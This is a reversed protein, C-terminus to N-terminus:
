IKLNWFLNNLYPRLLIGGLSANPFFGGGTDDDAVDESPMQFWRKPEVKFAGILSLIIFPSMSILCITVSLNGVVPLGLWNIYALIISTGALLIFRFFSNIENASPSSIGQLYALFLTPYIANDTVGSVWNLYGAMWGATKGFAKEVWVVGGSAEPFTSGLEATILAEPLSWVLPMIAFGLLTFLAGASHVCAEVGFPGGSVGYFVVVAFPIVGIKKGREDEVDISDTTTSDPDPTSVEENPTDRAGSELFM